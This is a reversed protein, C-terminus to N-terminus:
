GYDADRNQRKEEETFKVYARALWEGMWHMPEQANVTRLRDVVWYLMKGLVPDASLHEKAWHVDKEDVKALFPGIGVLQKAPPAAVKRRKGKLRSRDGFTWGVGGGTRPGIKVPIVYTGPGPLAACEKITM